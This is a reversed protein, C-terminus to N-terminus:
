TLKLIKPKKLKQRSKESPFIRSYYIVVNKYNKIRKM